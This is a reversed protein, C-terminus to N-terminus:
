MLGLIPIVSRRSVLRLIDVSVMSPSPPL